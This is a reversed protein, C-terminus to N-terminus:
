HVMLVAVKAHDIVHQSVGGLILERLRSHSYAGMVLMDAKIKEVKELLAHSEVDEGASEAVVNADVGHWALYRQVAQADPGDNSDEGITLITVNRATVLFPLSAAMARTSELSGNWGVVVHRGPDASASAPVMLVPRASRFLVGELIDVMGDDAAAEPQAIVAVDALRAEIGYTFDINGVCERWSASVQGKVADAIPLGQKACIEEFRAKAAAARERGQLEANESIQILMETPMPGVIYPMPASPDPRVHVGSLHASFRRALSIAVEVVHASAADSAFPVLINKIPM